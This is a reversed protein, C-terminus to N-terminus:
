QGNKDENQDSRPIKLIFGIGFSFPIKLSFKFVLAPVPGSTSLRWCPWVLVSIGKKRLNQGSHERQGTTRDAVPWWSETRVMQPRNVAMESQLVGIRLWRRDIIQGKLSCFRWEYGDTTPFIGHWVVFGVNTSYGDATPLKVHCVAVGWNKAM